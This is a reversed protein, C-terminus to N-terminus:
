RNVVPLIGRGIGLRLQGGPLSRPCPSIWALDRRNGALRPNQWPGVEDVTSLGLFKHPSPSNTFRTM